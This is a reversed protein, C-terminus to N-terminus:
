RVDRATAWQEAYLAHGLSDSPAQVDSWHIVSDKPVDRLLRCGEALGEPLLAEGQVIEANEAEGYTMYEGYADLVEGAVLDRKALAVVEVSPV